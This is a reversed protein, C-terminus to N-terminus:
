KKIIPAVELIREFNSFDKIINKIKFKEEKLLNKVSDLQNYGIEFYALGNNKLCSKASPLLNRLPELGFKGGNLAIIPEYNKVEIGVNKIHDKDIYPPNCILIDFYNPKIAEAWNGNVLTCRNRLKHKIINKKSVKLAKHSIDIGVGYAKPLHNLLTILIAGSGIGLDIINLPINKNVKKLINEIIHETEPRPILVNKNVYFNLDYFYRNKVLYAYPQNKARKKLLTIIKKYEKEQISKEPNTLFEYENINLVHMIILKAERKSNIISSEKLLKEGNILIDLLKM